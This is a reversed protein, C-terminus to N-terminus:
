FTNASLNRLARKQSLNESEIEFVVFYQSHLPQTFKPSGSDSM